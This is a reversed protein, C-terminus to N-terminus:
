MFTGNVKVLLLLKEQKLNTAHATFSLSLIITL